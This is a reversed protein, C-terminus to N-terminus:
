VSGHSEVHLTYLSHSSTMYLRNNKPGGFTLNACREPLRIFGIPKGQPNFVMVGDLDEPKGRLGFVRRGGVMAPEPELAGNSGWGCWLNGDRDVKFGDLAGQDAADILKTRNGLSGDSGVDFSWISRNPTGRWEVVYLKSEDPSFALGNPNVLDTVVANLTGNRDIRYVNTTPQDPKARSGEWEGNIGFLPDTFWITDDSRVVVDNPANLRRGEFSDALVTISGDRETRTVRRTVSHECTILRGQRDRANGNAFNAPSRFVTFSGDKEDYKMIRNNPIDSCLLYGGEPFYAPGEAWRMGTAVQELTSSYIRYKAFSPDLIQVAPDPYRQNPTFPFSQAGAASTLLSGGAASVAAGLMWRRTRNM